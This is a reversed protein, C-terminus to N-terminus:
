IRLHPHSTRCALLCALPCTTNEVGRDLKCRKEEQCKERGGERERDDGKEAERRGGGRVTRCVKAIKIYSSRM